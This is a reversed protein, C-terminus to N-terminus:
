PQEFMPMHLEVNFWKTPHLKLQSSIKVIKLSPKALKLYNREITIGCRSMKFNSVIWNPMDVLTHNDKDVELCEWFVEHFFCGFWFIIKSIVALHDFM